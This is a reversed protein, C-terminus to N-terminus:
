GPRLRAVLTYGLKTFSADPNDFLGEAAILPIFVGPGTEVQVGHFGPPMVGVITFVRNQITLKKGIVSPDGHYSRIWFTNSLVAPLVDSAHLEDAPTLTRGYLPQVGLANFFSGSVIHCRVSHAGGNDRVAVNSESYGFVAAFCRNRRELARYTNYTFFSRPGLPAAVQVLRVLEAPKRVPLPRLLLADLLSFIASNLGIGLALLLIVCAFFAPSKRGLRLAYRIDQILPAVM